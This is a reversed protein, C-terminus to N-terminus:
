KPVCMGRAKFNHDRVGDDRVVRLLRLIIQTNPQTNQTGECFPPPRASCLSSSVSFVSIARRLVRISSSSDIRSWVALSDTLYLTLLTSYVVFNFESSRSCAEAPTYLSPVLHKGNKLYRRQRARGDNHERSVWYGGNPLYQFSMRGKVREKELRGPPQLVSSTHVLM